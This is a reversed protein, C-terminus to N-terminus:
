RVPVWNTFEAAPVLRGMAFEDDRMIYDGRNITVLEQPSFVSTGEVYFESGTRYVTYDVVGLAKAAEDVTGMTDVLLAQCTAHKEAYHRFSDEVPLAARTRFVVM